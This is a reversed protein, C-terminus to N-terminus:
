LSSERWHVQAADQRDREYGWFCRGLSFLVIEAFKWAKQKNEPYEPRCYKHFTTSSSWIFLIRRSNSKLFSHIKPKLNLDM